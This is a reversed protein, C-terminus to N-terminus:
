RTAGAHLTCDICDILDRYSRWDPFREEIQGIIQEQVAAKEELEIERQSPPANLDAAIMERPGHPKALIERAAERAAKVREEIKTCDSKDWAVIRLPEFASEIADIADSFEDKYREDDWEYPGRGDSRLWERGAIEHKIRQLVIAVVYRDRDIVHKLHDVEARLEAAMNVLDTVVESPTDMPGWGKLPWQGSHTEIEEMLDRGVQAMDEDSYEAM